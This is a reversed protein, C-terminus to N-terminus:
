FGLELQTESLWDPGEGFDPEDQERLTWINYDAYYEWIDLHQKDYMADLEQEMEPFIMQTYSKVALGLLQKLITEM